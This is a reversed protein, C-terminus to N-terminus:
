AHSLRILNSSGASPSLPFRATSHSDSVVPSIRANATL